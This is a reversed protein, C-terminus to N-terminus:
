FIKKTIKEQAKLERAWRIKKSLNKNKIKNQFNERTVFIIRIYCIISLYFFMLPITKFVHVCVTIYM